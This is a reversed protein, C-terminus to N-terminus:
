AIAMFYSLHLQFHQWSAGKSCSPIVGIRRKQPQIELTIGFRSFRDRIIKAVAAAYSIGAESGRNRVPNM